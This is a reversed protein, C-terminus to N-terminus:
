WWRCTHWEPPHTVRSHAHHKRNNNRTRGDDDMRRWKGRSRYKRTTIVDGHPPEKRICHREGKGVLVMLLPPHDADLNLIGAVKAPDFGIMPCSDLGMDKAVLMLAMGALGASRCGEDRLMQEKGEYLDLILKAM